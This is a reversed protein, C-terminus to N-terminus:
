TIVEVWVVVEISGVVLATVVEIVIALYVDHVDHEYGNV